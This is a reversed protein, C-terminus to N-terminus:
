GGALRAALAPAAHWLALLVARRAGPRAAVSRRLWALGEDRRDRRLLARGVVWHNEAEMRARLRALRAPGFRDKLDTAAFGARLAPAFAAPDGSARACAGDARRRVFLVPRRGPVPAFCGRRALRLWYEWDEAYTLEPRFDGAARVAEARILLQGGNVFLNRCLLRALVDGGAPKHRGPLPAGAATVAAWAGCAAVADPHAALTAALRALADPALLDDADLFLVAAVPGAAAVPAAVPAAFLAALGRNRAASVGASVGRPAARIVAIRADGTGAAIAATADASGDDVVVAQWAAHSQARVSALTAGIWPAADRAPIVLGIRLLGPM